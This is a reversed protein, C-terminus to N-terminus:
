AATARTEFIRARACCSLALPGRTVHTIAGAVMRGDAMTWHGGFVVCVGSLIAACM